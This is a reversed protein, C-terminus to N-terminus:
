KPMIYPKVSEQSYECFTYECEANLGLLCTLHLGTIWYLKSMLDNSIGQTYLISWFWFIKKQFNDKIQYQRVFQEETCTSFRRIQDCKRFFDKLSFKM